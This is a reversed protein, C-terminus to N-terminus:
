GVRDFEVRLVVRRGCGKCFDNAPDDAPDPEGFVRAEPIHLRIREPPIADSGVPLDCVPCITPGEPLARRELKAIRTALRM